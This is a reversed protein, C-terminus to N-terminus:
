GPRRRYLDAAGYAAGRGPGQFVLASSPARCVKAAPPKPLTINVDGGRLAQHGHVSCYGALHQSAEYSILM